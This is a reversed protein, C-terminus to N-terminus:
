YQLFYEQNCSLSVTNVEELGYTISTSKLHSEMELEM